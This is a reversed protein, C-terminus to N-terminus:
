EVVCPRLDGWPLLIFALLSPNLLSRGLKKSNTFALSKFKFVDTAIATIILYCVSFLLSFATISLPRIYPVTYVWSVWTPNTVDWSLRLITHNYHLCSPCVAGRENLVWILHTTILNFSSMWDLRHKYHTCSALVIFDKNVLDSNLKNNIQQGIIVNFIM